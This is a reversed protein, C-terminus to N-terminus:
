ANANNKFHLITNNILENLHSGLLGWIDGANSSM